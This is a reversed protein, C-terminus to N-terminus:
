YTQSKKEYHKITVQFITNLTKWSGQGYKQHLAGLDIVTQGFGTLSDSEVATIYDLGLTEDEIEARIADKLTKEEIDLRFILPTSKLSVLSGIQKRNSIMTVYRKGSLKYDVHNSTGWKSQRYMQLIRSYVGKRDNGQVIDIFVDLPQRFDKEVTLKAIRLLEWVPQLEKRTLVGVSDEEKDLLEFFIDFYASINGKLQEVNPTRNYLKDIFPIQDLYEWNEINKITNPTPSKVFYNFVEPWAVQMCILAYLIKRNDASDKAKITAHKKRIIRILRVYNIVRKISRPNRGVTVSTIEDYFELDADSVKFGANELLRGIYRALNYSTSPMSFPLQIIKDFFSKGSQKQLDIGFKEAMGMQVVEYDVALLFVCHEVDLFNKLSELLELAKLPKVRDLDDIFFVLRDIPKGKRTCNSVIHNVLRQFDQKFSLMLQSVDEYDIAQGDPKFAAEPDISVGFASLKTSKLVKGIASTTKKLIDNDENIEFQERLQNLIGSIAAVGLYEDQGFLSYHWTNFNVLGFEKDPQSELFAEIMNLMSTKGMGWDGQIGVTMPTDCTSIFIALAEAYDRTELDDNAVIQKTLLDKEEHEFNVPTDNYNSM